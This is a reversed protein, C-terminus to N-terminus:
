EFFRIRESPPMTSNLLMELRRPNEQRGISAAGMVYVNNVVEELSSNRELKSALPVFVLNALVAGYFTTLLAVAMSPGITTPDDLNGLMQVLGILTGILGMAPAFDAARRLVNASKAHRQAMSNLERRLINEVQGGPVGDVVLLVAKHLFPENKVSDLIKQLSLVGNKRAMQSIQMVQLAADSPERISHFITKSVVSFTKSVESISFCITTVALTGGIVIFIAPINIFSGPSGGLIIAAVILGFAALLGLITALDVSNRVPAIRVEDDAM